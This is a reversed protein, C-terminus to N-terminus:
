DGFWAWTPAASYTLKIWSNAPLRVTVGAASSLLGTPSTGVSTFGTAIATITGGIIYVTMDAGFTNQIATGSAPVAPPTVSGVPNFGPCALVKGPTAAFVTAGLFICFSFFSHVSPANVNANVQGALSGTQTLFSCNSVFVNGTTTVNLDYRGAGATAGNGNFSCGVIQVTDTNGSISIGDAANAEFHSGNITIETGATISLGNAGNEIQAEVFEIQRPTGNPGAEILAANGTSLPTDCGGVFGLVHISACNGKIHLATGSGASINCEATEIFTDFTDEILFGDGNGSGTSIQDLSCNRLTHAANPNTATGVIHIGQLGLQGFVNDLLTWKNRVTNTASSQVLWGNIYLGSVNQILTNPAGTIQIGNAAPNAAYNTNAYAITLNTVSCGPATINIIQSGVFSALPQIVPFAGIGVLKVNPVNLNIPSSIPFLGQFLLTGGGIAGIAAIAQAITAIDDTRGTGTNGDGYFRVDYIPSDRYTELYGM